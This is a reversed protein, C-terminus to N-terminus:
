SSLRRMLADADRRAMAKRDDFVATLRVEGGGAATRDPGYSDGAREAEVRRFIEARKAVPAGDDRVVVGERVPDLTESVAALRVAITM